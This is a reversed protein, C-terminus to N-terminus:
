QEIEIRRFEIPQHLPFDIPFWRNEWSIHSKEQLKERLGILQYIMRSTEVQLQIEAHKKKHKRTSIMNFIKVWWFISVHYFIRAM